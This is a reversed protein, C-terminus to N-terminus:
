LREQTSFGELFGLVRKVLGAVVDDSDGSLNHTAGELIGSNETDVKGKGKKAIETWHALLNAQDIGKAVYEDNGSLLICLPTSAPLSGFSKMLQEDKLDSSFYDDPGDHNPSALSLWRKASVPCPFTNNTEVSPLIEDADGNDVMTQAADCASRITKPDTNISIAERDSIAAQIIGGDIPSRTEHGTGTLYEM